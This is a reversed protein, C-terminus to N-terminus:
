AGALKAARKRSYMLADARELIADIEDQRSVSVSGVDGYVQLEGKSTKVPIAFTQELRALLDPHQSAILFEDGGMRVTLDHRRVSAKLRKAVELLVEDGVKHGFKDNFGKFERLDVFAVSVIAGSKCLEELRELGAARNFLNTLFPDHLSAHRELSLTLAAGGMAILTVLAILAAFLSINQWVGSLYAVTALVLLWPIPATDGDSLNTLAIGFFWVPIIMIFPSQTGGTNQLMLAIAVADACALSWRVWNPSSSFLSLSYLMISGFLITLTIASFHYIGFGHLLLYIVYSALSGVVRQRWIASTSTSAGFLQM